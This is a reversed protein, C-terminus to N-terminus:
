KNEGSKWRDVADERSKAYGSWVPMQYAHADREEGAYSQNVVIAIQGSAASQCRWVTFHPLSHAAM